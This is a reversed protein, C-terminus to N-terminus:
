WSHDTIDLYTTTKISTLLIGSFIDSQILSQYSSHHTMWSCRPMKTITAHPLLLSTSQYGQYPSQERGEIESWSISWTTNLLWCPFSHVNKWWFVYTPPTSTSPYAEKQYVCPLSPPKHHNLRNAREDAHSPHPNRPPNPPPDLRPPIPPNLPPVAPQQLGHLPQQVQPIRLVYPHGDTDPLNYTMNPNIPISPRKDEQDRSCNPLDSENFTATSSVIICSKTKSWFQFAKSGKKYGIFIAEEAKPSLKGHHDEQPIFIYAHCGFVKFYSVDPTKGNWISISTKWDHYHKLQWNYIHLTTEITNQWFFPPLYAHQCMVEAKELLIHNFHEAWRNQQPTCPVSTQHEIQQINYEM